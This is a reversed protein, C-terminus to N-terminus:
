SYSHRSHPLIDSNISPTEPSAGSLIQMCQPPTERFRTRDFPTVDRISPIIPDRPPLVQQPLSSRQSLGGHLSGPVQQLYLRQFGDPNFKLFPPLL